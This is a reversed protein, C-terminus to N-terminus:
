TECFGKASSRTCRQAHTAASFCVWCFLEAVDGRVAGAVVIRPSPEVQGIEQFPLVAFQRAVAKIKRVDGGALHEIRNRLFTASPLEGCCGAAYRSVSSARREPVTLGGPHHCDFLRTDAVSSMTSIPVTSM